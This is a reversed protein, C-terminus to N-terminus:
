KDEKDMGYKILKGIGRAIFGVTVVGFVFQVMETVKIFIFIWLALDGGKNIIAVIAELIKENM